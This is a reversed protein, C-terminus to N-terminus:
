SRDMELRNFQTTPPEGKLLKLGNIMQYGEKTPCILCSDRPTHLWGLSWRFPHPHPHQTTCAGTNSLVYKRLMNVASEVEEVPVGHKQAVMELYAKEGKIGAMVEDKFPYVPHIKMEDFQERTNGREFLAKAKAFINRMSIGNATKPNPKM